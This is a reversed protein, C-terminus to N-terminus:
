DLVQTVVESGDLGFVTCWMGLRRVKTNQSSGLSSTRVFPLYKVGRNFSEIYRM